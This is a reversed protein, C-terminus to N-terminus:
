VYTPGMAELDNALEEPLPSVPTVETADRPDLAGDVEFEKAIDTSAYKWFLMAIDKYRKLHHPKFSFKMPEDWRRRGRIVCLGFPMGGLRSSDENAGAMGRCPKRSVVM